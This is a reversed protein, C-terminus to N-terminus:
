DEGAWFCTGFHGITLREIETMRGTLNASYELLQKIWENSGQANPRIQM